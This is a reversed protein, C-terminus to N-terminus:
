EWVSEWMQLLGTNIKVNKRVSGLAQSGIEWVHDDERAQKICAHVRQLGVQGAHRWVRINGVSGAGRAELIVLADQDPGM